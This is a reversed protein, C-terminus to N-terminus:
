MYHFLCPGVKSVHGMVQKSLRIQNQNVLEQAHWVTFSIHEWSGGQVHRKGSSALNVVFCSWLQPSGVIVLDYIPLELEVVGNILRSSIKTDDLIGAEQLKQRLRLRIIFAIVFNYLIPSVGLVARPVGIYTIIEVADVIKLYRLIISRTFPFAATYTRVNLEGSKCWLIGHKIDESIM